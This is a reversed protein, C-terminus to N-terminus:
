CAVTFVLHSSAKRRWWVVMTGEMRGVKEDRWGEGVKEDRWGERVQVDRWGERWGDPGGWILQKQLRLWFRQLWWIHFVRCSGAGAAHWQLCIFTLLDAGVGQRGAPPPQRRVASSHSGVPLKNPFHTEPKSVRQAGDGSTQKPWTPSDRRWRWRKRWRGHFVFKLTPDSKTSAGGGPQTVSWQGEWLDTVTAQKRYLLQRSTELPVCPLHFTNTPTRPNQKKTLRVTENHYCSIHSSVLPSSPSAPRCRRWAAVSEKGSKQNLKNKVTVTKRQFIHIYIYLISGKNDNDCTSCRRWLWLLINDKIDKIEYKFKTTDSVQKPLM